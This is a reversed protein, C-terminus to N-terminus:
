LKVIFQISIICFYSTNNRRAIVIGNWSVLSYFWYTSLQSKEAAFSIGQVLKADAEIERTQAERLIVVSNQKVANM